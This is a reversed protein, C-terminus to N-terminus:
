VSRNVHVFSTVIVSSQYYVSLNISQFNQEKLTQNIKNGGFFYFFFFNAHTVLYMGISVLDNHIWTSHESMRTFGDDHIGHHILDKM